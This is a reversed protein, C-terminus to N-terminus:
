LAKGISWPGPPRGECLKACLPDLDGLDGDAVYKAGENLYVTMRVSTDECSLHLTAAKSKQCYLTVTSIQQRELQRVMERELPTWPLSVTDVQHLMHGLRNIQTVIYAGLPEGGRTCYYFAGSDVEDIGIDQSRLDGRADQWAVRLQESDRRTVVLM